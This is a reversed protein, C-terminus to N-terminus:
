PWGPDPRRLHLDYGAAIAAWRIPGVREGLVLPSLTVVCIPAAMWFAMVDALPLSTVAWYLCVVEGTSFAVRAMQLGPGKVTLVQPLGERWLIPALILLAACSRILLVQGVSYTAVLWKGLTDNLSFLFMGLLM